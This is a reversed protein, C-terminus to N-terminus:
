AKDKLSQGKPKTRRYQTCEAQARAPEYKPQTDWPTALRALCITKKKLSDNIANMRDLIHRFVYPEKHQEHIDQVDRSVM